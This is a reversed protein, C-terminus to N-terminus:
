GSSDDNIITGTGRATGISANVAGSLLVFLTENGEFLTDGNITISITRTLATGPTFSLTGSKAVYDSTSRAIGNASAYNVTVTQGSAKSLTVTFTLTNTTDGESLSVDDILLAPARDDNLITGVAQSDTITAHVPSSLNVLFSENPENLLDGNIYVRAYAYLAGTTFSIQTPPLAVYDNGATTSSTTSSDASTATVRVVQGSPSSLKLRFAAVRQGNNGEGISIDDISLSPREDDDFITGIGRGRAIATNAPSSLIVYFIEDSENLMDGNVPVSFTKRTEGPAFVLNIGSSSYDGPAKATGNYSIASLSVTRGSRASLDVTFTASVTGSNGEFVFIDNISATPAADDDTITGLGQADNLSANTPHSLNLRLLEDPEDLTDGRVFVTITKQTEGPAFTITGGATAYDAPASASIDLTGYDVQVSLPTAESLTVTFNLATTASDNEKVSVDNISIAPGPEDHVITATGQAQTVDARVANSLHLFFTEDPEIIDDGIFNVHVTKNTEGPAFTLTGSTALYDSGAVAGNNVGDATAYNV